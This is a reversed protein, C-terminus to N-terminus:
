KLTSDEELSGEVEVKKIYEKCKEYDGICFLQLFSVDIHARYEPSFPNVKGENNKIKGDIKKLKEAYERCYYFYNGVLGLYPCLDLNNTEIRNKLEAIIGKEGERLIDDLSKIGRWSNEYPDFSKKNM